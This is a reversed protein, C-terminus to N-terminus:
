LLFIAEVKFDYDVKLYKQTIISRELLIFISHKPHEQCKVNFLIGRTKYAVCYVCPRALVEKGRLLKTSRM